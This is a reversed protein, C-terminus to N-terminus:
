LSELAEFYGLFGRISNSIFIRERAQILPDMDPWCVLHEDAKLLRAM